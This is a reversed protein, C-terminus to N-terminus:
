RVLRIHHTSCLYERVFLMLCCQHHVPSVAPFVKIKQEVDISIYGAPHHDTQFLHRGARHCYFVSPLAPG